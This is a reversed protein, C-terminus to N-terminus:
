PMTKKKIQRNQRAVSNVANTQGSPTLNYSPNHSVFTSTGPEIPSVGRDQAAAYPECEKSLQQRKAGTPM